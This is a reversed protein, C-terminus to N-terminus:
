QKEEGVIAGVIAQLVGRLGHAQRSVIAAKGPDVTPLSRIIRSKWADVQVNEPPPPPKPFPTNTSPPIPTVPPVVVNTETKPLQVAPPAADMERPPITVSLTEANPETVINPFVAVSTRCDIM